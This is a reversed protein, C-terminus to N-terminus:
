TRVTNLHFARIAFAASGANFSASAGRDPRGGDREAFGIVPGRAQERLV